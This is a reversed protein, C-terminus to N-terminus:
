AAREQESAEWGEVHDALVENLLTPIEGLDDGKRMRYPGRREGTAVGHLYRELGYLPGATRFTTLVALVFLIPLLLVFSIAFVELLLGPLVESVDQGNQTLRQTAYSLRAALYLFQFVLALAALGVFQLCLRRQFGPVIRQRRRTRAPSTTM